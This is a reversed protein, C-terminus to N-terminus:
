EETEELNILSDLPNNPVIPHNDKFDELAQEYTTIVETRFDNASVILGGAGRVVVQETADSTAVRVLTDRGIERIYREIFQDATEGEKTYVVEISGRNERHVRGKVRYADFVIMIKKHTLGQYNSLIDLLKNRSVELDEKPLGKLEEWSHIMNYGDVIIIEDKIKHKEKGLYYDKKQKRRVRRTEKKNSYFTENLIREIENEDVYFSSVRSAMLGEEKNEKIKPSIHAYDYVESWPVTFGAGQSCFISASPQELDRLPDYRSEKLIEDQNHCIGYASFELQIRGAGKTFSQVEMIYNRMLSVPVEASFVVQGERQKSSINEGKLRTLDNLLRGYYDLPVEIVAKYYPELIESEGMMLGQRVARIVAERFDGGETHKEHSKGEVLTIKTDTLELGALVGRFDMNKIISLIHNQERQNIKEIDRGLLAEIGSGQKGPELLLQVEAYHRLPEFHGIGISPNKVKEKYIIRGKDFSVGIQFREELVEKLIEILMEGMVHISIGETQHSHHVRLEPMEEELIKLAELLENKKDEEAYVGYTIVPSLFPHDQDKEFGLGKGPFSNQLGIVSCIEGPFAEQVSVFDEGSYIRIENIKEDEILSKNELVGGTIKMETIRQHGDRHIKYVKAGFDSPYTRCIMWEEIGALFEKVGELKLASGFYCPFIERDRISEQIEKKGISNQDLYQDLFETKVVALEEWLKEQSQGFIIASESLEQGIQKMLDEKELAGAQDMKNIFLFVPIKYYDLLSWLTKTHARVGDAGNIVLIGYDLVSLTREMEASFDVHGPTDLIIWERDEKKIRATKSFVTIGREKEIGKTDLFADQHDVRGLSTLVGSSYLMAEALTTKGSDVHALIGLTIKGKKTSDEM